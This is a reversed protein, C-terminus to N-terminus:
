AIERRLFQQVEDSSLLVVMAADAMSKALGDSFYFDETEIGQALKDLYEDIITVLKARIEYENRIM